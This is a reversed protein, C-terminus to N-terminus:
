SPMIISLTIAHKQNSKKKIRSDWAQIRCHFQFIVNSTQLKSKMLLDNTMILNVTMKKNKKNKM